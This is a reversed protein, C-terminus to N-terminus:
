IYSSCIPCLPLLDGVAVVGSKTGDAPTSPHHDAFTLKVSLLLTHVLGVSQACLVALTLLDAQGLPWFIWKGLAQMKSLVTM